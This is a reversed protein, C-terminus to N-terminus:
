VRKRPKEKEAEVQIEREVSRSAAEVVQMAEVWEFDQAEVGGDRPM